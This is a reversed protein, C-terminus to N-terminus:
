GVKMALFKIETLIHDSKEKMENGKDQTNEKYNSHAPHNGSKGKHM